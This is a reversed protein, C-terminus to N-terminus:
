RYFNGWFNWPWQPRLAMGTERNDVSTNAALAKNEESTLGADILRIIAIQEDMMEHKQRFKRLRDKIHEPLYFLKRM